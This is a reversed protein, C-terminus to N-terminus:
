CFVAYSIYGHSSNLRTSKRDSRNSHPQIWGASGPFIGQSQQSRCTWEFRDAHRRIWSPLPLQPMEASPLYRSHVTYWSEFMQLEHSIKWTSSMGGKRRLTPPGDHSRWDGLHSGSAYSFRHHRVERM